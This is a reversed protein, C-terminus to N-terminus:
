AASETGFRSREILAGFYATITPPILALLPEFPSHPGSTIAIAYALVTGPLSEERASM